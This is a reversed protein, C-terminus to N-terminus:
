MNTIYPHVHKTSVSTLDVPITNARQCWFLARQGLAFAVAKKAWRSHSPVGAPRMIAAASSGLIKEVKIKEEWGGEQHGETNQLCPRGHVCASFYELIV